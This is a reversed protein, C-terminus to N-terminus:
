RRPSTCRTGARILGSPTNWCAERAPPRCAHDSATGARRDRPPHADRDGTALDQRGRGERRAGGCRARPDPHAQRAITGRHRDLGRLRALRRARGRPDPLDQPVGLACQLSAEGALHPERAHLASAHAYRIAKALADDFDIWSEHRLLGRLRATRGRCELLEHILRDQMRARGRRVLRLVRDPHEACLWRGKYFHRRDLLYGDIAPDDERVADAIADALEPTAIEDSDLLLVWATSDACDLGFQKQGALSGSEEHSLWPRHVVECGLAECREITGDTSGSDVVVIRRAISRIALISREITRLSDKATYVVTLDPASM